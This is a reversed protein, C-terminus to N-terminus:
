VGFSGLACYLFCFLPPTAQADGGREKSATRRRISSKALRRQGPGHSFPGSPLFGLHYPFGGSFSAGFMTGFCLIVEKGLWAPEYADM